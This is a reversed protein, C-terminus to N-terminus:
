EGQPLLLERTETRGVEVKENPHNTTCTLKTKTPIQDKANADLTHACSLVDEQGRSRQRLIYSRNPDRNKRFFRAWSRFKQSLPIAIEEGHSTAKGM